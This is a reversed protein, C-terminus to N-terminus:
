IGGQWNIAPAYFHFCPYLTILVYMYKLVLIRRFAHLALLHFAHCVFLGVISFTIGIYGKSVPVVFFFRMCPYGLSVLKEPVCPAKTAAINFTVLVLLIPNGSYHSYPYVSPSASQISSLTIGLHCQESLLLM